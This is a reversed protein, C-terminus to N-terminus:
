VVESLERVECGYYDALLRALGEHTSAVWDPPYLHDSPVGAPGVHELDHAGIVEKLAEDLDSAGVSHPTYRPADAGVITEGDPGTVIATVPAPNHILVSEAILSHEAHAEAVPDPVDPDALEDPTLEAQAEAARVFAEQAAEHAAVVEDHGAQSLGLRQGEGRFLIPVSNEDYITM